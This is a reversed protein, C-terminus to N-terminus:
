LKNWDHIKNRPKVLFSHSYNWLYTQYHENDHVFPTRIYMIPHSEIRDMDHRVFDSVEFVDGIVYDDETGPILAPFPRQAVQRLEFGKVVMNTAIVKADEEDKFFNTIDNPQGSRLTGYVFIKTSM